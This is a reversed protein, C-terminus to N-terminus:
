FTPTLLDLLDLKERSTLETKAQEERYELQKETAFAISPIAAVADQNSYDVSIVDSNAFGESRASSKQFSSKTTNIQISNLEKEQSVESSLSEKENKIKLDEQKSKKLEATLLQSKETSNPIFPYIALVLLVLAAIKLWGQQQWSKSEDYVFAFVSNYWLIGKNQYTQNFLVDLSEKTEDKLQSDQIQKAAFSDVGLLMSKLAYFSAEDEFLERLENKENETLDSFEKQLIIDLDEMIEKM